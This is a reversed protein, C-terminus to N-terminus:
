QGCRSLAPQSEALNDVQEASQGGPMPPALGTSDLRATAFASGHRATGVQGIATELNGPRAPRKRDPLKAMPSARTIPYIAIV